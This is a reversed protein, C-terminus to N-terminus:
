DPMRAENLANTAITGRIKDEEDTANTIPTMVDTAQNLVNLNKMLDEVGLAKLQLDYVDKLGSTIARMLVSSNRDTDLSQMLELYKIRATESDHLLNQQVRIIENLHQSEETLPPMERAQSFSNEKYEILSELSTARSSCDKSVKHLDSITKGIQTLMRPPINNLNELLHAIISQCIPFLSVILEDASQGMQKQKKLEARLNESILPTNRSEKEGMASDTEESLDNFSDAEAIAAVFDAEKSWRIVTQRSVGCKDAAESKSFGQVLLYKVQKRQSKKRVPPENM